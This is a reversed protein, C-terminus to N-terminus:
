TGEMLMGEARLDRRGESAGEWWWTGGGRAQMGWDGWGSTGGGRAQMEGDQRRGEQRCGGPGVNWREEVSGEQGLDGEGKGADWCGVGTGKRRKQMRCAGGRGGEGGGADRGGEQLRGQPLLAVLRQQPRVGLLSTHLHQGLLDPQAAVARAVRKTQRVHQAQYVSVTLVHPLPATRLATQHTNKSTPPAIAQQVIAQWSQSRCASSSAKQGKHIANTCREAVPARATSSGSNRELCCDAAGSKEMNCVVNACRRPLCPM